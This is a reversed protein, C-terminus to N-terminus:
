PAEPYPLDARIQDVAAHWEALTAEDRQAKFFLPDAELQFRHLRAEKIRTVELDHQVKPWKGDLTKKSPKPTDSLWTLGAYADGDLTWETGPYEATLVAAYDTM